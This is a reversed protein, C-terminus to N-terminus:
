NIMAQSPHRIQAQKKIM